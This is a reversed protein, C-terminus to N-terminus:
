DQQSKQQYQEKSSEAKCDVEKPDHSDDGEEDPYDAEEYSSCFAAPVVPLAGPMFFARRFRRAKKV